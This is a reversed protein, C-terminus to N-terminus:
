KQYNKLIFQIAKKKKIKSLGRHIKIKEKLHAFKGELNNTTNPINLSPHEKYTFLHELNRKISAFASRVASHRYGKNQENRQVLFLHYKEKLAFFRDIFNQPDIKSLDNMLGKLEKACDSKPNNTIYRRVIAKQHFHCIQIPRNPYIKKLNSIFGRKGDLIFSQFRYNLNDEIHKLCERLGAVGETRIEKFYILKKGDSFCFYGYEKGFYTADFSLNIVRDVGSLAHHHNFGEKNIIM